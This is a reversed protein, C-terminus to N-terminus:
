LYVQICVVDTSHTYVYVSSRFEFDEYSYTVFGHWAGVASRSRWCWVHLTVNIQFQRNTFLAHSILSLTVGAALPGRSVPPLFYSTATRTHWPDSPNTQVPSCSRQWVSNSEPCSLVACLFGVCLPLWLYLVADRKRETEREGEREPPDTLHQPSLRDTRSLRQLSQRSLSCAAHFVSVSVQRRSATLRFESTYLSSILNTWRPLSHKRWFLSIKNILSDRKLGCLLFLLRGHQILANWCPKCAYALRLTGQWLRDGFNDHAALLFWLNIFFSCREGRRSYIPGNWAM